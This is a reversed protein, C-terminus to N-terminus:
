KKDLIFSPNFSNLFPHNVNDNGQLNFQCVENSCFGSDINAIPNYNIYNPNMCGIIGPEQNEIPYKKWVLEYNSSSTFILYDDQLQYPYFFSTGFANVDIDACFLQNTEVTYDFFVNQESVYLTDNATVYTGKENYYYEGFPVGDEVDM